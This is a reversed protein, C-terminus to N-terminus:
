KLEIKLGKELAETIVIKKGKYKIIDERTYPFIEVNLNGDLLMNVRIMNEIFNKNKFEESVILIDIDSEKLPNGYVRSGFLYVEEVKLEDKLKKLLKALEKKERKSIKVKELEKEINM